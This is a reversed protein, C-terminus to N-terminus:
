LDASAHAEKGGLEREATDGGPQLTGSRVILESAPFSGLAATGGGALYLELLRRQDAFAFQLSGDVIESRAVARVGVTEDGSGSAQQDTQAVFVMTAGHRRADRRPDSSLVLQRIGELKLSLGTEEKVERVAADEATEGIEVYGGPLSYGYPPRTRNVLVVGLEGPFCPTDAANASCRAEVIVDVSLSPTCLCYRDQDGCWCSGEPGGAYPVNQQIGHFTSSCRVGLLREAFSNHFAFIELVIGGTLGLTLGLAFTVLTNSNM